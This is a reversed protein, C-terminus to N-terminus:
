FHKNSEYLDSSPLSKLQLIISKTENVTIGQSAYETMLFNHLDEEILVEDPKRTFSKGLIYKYGEQALLEIFSSELSAETYHKM